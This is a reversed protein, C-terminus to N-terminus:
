GLELSCSAGELDQIQPRCRLGQALDKVGGEGAPWVAGQGWAIAQADGLTVRSGAAMEQVVSGQCKQAWSM